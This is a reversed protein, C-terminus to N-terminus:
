SIGCAICAARQWVVGQFGTQSAHQLAQHADSIVLLIGNLGRRGSVGCFTWGSPGVATSALSQGSM